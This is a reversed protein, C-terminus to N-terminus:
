INLVICIVHVVAMKTQYVEHFGILTSVADDDPKEKFATKHRGALKSASSSRRFSSLPSDDQVLFEHVPVM